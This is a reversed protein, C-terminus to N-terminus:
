LVVRPRCYVGVLALGLFIATSPEPIAKIEAGFNAVPNDPPPGFWAGGGNLWFANESSGVTPPDYMIPGLDQAVSRNAFEITWTVTDPILVEPPTVTVTNIGAAYSQDSLSTSFLETGTPTGGAHLTITTDASNAVPAYVLLSIENMLRPGPALTVTDGCVDGDDIGFYFGLLNATNNYVPSSSLPEPNLGAPLPVPDVLLAGQASAFICILVTGVVKFTFKM